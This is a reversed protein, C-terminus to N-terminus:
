RSQRAIVRRSCLRRRWHLLLDAFLNRERLILVGWWRSLCNWQLWLAVCERGWWFVGELLAHLRLMRRGQGETRPWRGLQRHRTRLRVKSSQNQPPVSGEETWIFKSCMRLLIIYIYAVSSLIACSLSRCFMVKGVPTGPLTPRLDNEYTEPYVSAWKMNWSTSQVGRSAVQHIFKLQVVRQGKQNTKRYM